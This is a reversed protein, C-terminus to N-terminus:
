LGSPQSAQLSPKTAMAFDTWFGPPSFEIQYKGNEDFALDIKEEM